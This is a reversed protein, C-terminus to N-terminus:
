ASNCKKNKEWTATQDEDHKSLIVIYCGILTITSYYLEQFFEVKFM